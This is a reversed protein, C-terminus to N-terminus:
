NCFTGLYWIKNGCCLSSGVFIMSEVESKFLVNGCWSSLGKPITNNTHSDNRVCEQIYATNDCVFEVSIM